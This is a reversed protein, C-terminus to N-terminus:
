QKEYRSTIKLINIRYMYTKIRNPDVILATTEHEFSHVKSTTELTFFENFFSEKAQTYEEGELEEFKGIVLVCQWNYIDTIISVEMCVNPNKRIIDLRSGNNMQGIIAKGDYKYTIPVVFPYLGDAYALHGVTQSSLLSNIEDKTLAGIM